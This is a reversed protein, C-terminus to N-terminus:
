VPAHRRLRESGQEQHRSGRRRVHNGGFAPCEVSGLGRALRRGADFTADAHQHATGIDTIRIAERDADGAGYASFYWWLFFIGYLALSILAERNAQRINDTSKSSM